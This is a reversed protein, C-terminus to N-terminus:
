SAKREHLRDYQLDDDDYLEAMTDDYTDQDDDVDFFMSHVTPFTTENRMFRRFELACPACLDVAAQDLEGLVDIHVAPLQHHAGCRCPM